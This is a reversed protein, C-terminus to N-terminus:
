SRGKNYKNRTLEGLAEAAAAREGATGDGLMAVLGPLAVATAMAGYTVKQSKTNSKQLM